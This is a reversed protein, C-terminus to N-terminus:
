ISSFRVYCQDLTRPASWETRLSSYMAFSTETKLGLYPSMGNLFVVPLMLWLLGPRSSWILTPSSDRCVYSRAIASFFLIAIIISWFFWLRYGIARLPPRGIESDYGGAMLYHVGFIFGASVFLIRVTWVIRITRDSGLSTRLKALLKAVSDVCFLGYLAFIFASFTRHGILGLLLHFPLGVVFASYRTQRFCLLVPLVIEIILFIWLMAVITWQDSPLPLFSFRSLVDEYFFTVCSTELNFFDWNLKTVFILYYMLIVIAGVVPAFRDFIQNRVEVDAESTTRYERVLTMGIAGLIVLNILSELLIHNAVFPWRVGVNYFVSSSLMTSFLILSRPFLLTGVISITLIWGM